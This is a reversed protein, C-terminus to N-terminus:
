VASSQRHISSDLAACWQCGQRHWPDAGGGAVLHRALRQWTKSSIRFALAGVIMGFVIFAAQRTLFYTPRLSSYKPSDYLAISASYVMVLGFLLLIVSVWFLPQDWSMMASRTPKVTNITGARSGVLTERLSGGLTALNLM